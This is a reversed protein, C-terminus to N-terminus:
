LEYISAVTSALTAKLSLCPQMLSNQSRAKPFHSDDWLLLLLYTFEGSFHCNNIVHITEMSVFPIRLLKKSELSDLLMKSDCFRIPKVGEARGPWPRGCCGGCRGTKHAYPMICWSGSNVWDWTWETPPAMRQWGRRRGGEIMGLMLTKELSDTRWMLHSFYQVKLKLMLGELSYEPSIEM